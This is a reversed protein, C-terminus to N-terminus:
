LAFLIGPPIAVSQWSRSARREIIHQVPLTVTQDLGRQSLQTGAKALRNNKPINLIQTVFLDRLNEINRKTSYLGSNQTAALGKAPLQFLSQLPIGPEVQRGLHHLLLNHLAVLYLTDERPIAVACQGSRL